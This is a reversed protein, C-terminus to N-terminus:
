RRIKKFRYNVQGETVVRVRAPIMFPQLRGKCHEAIRKRMRVAPVPEAMQVTVTVINGLLLHEEGKVAVDIVGDM